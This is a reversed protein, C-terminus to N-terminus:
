ASSKMAWRGSRDNAAGRAAKVAAEFEEDTPPQTQDEGHLARLGAAMSRLRWLSM